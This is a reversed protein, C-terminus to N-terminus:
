TPTSCHLPAVTHTDTNSLSVNQLTCKWDSVASFTMFWRQQMLVVVPLVWPVYMCAGGTCVIIRHFMWCMFVMWLTGIDWSYLNTLNTKTSKRTNITRRLLACCLKEKLCARFWAGYVKTLVGEVVVGGNAASSTVMTVGVYALCHVCLSFHTNHTHADTRTHTALILCPSHSVRKAKVGQTRRRQWLQKTRQSRAPYNSTIGTTQGQDQPYCNYESLGRVSWFSHFVCMCVCVCHVLLNSSIWANGNRCVCLFVTQSDNAGSRQESM